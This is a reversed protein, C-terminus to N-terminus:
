RITPLHVRLLLRVASGSRHQPALSIPTQDNGDCAHLDAKAKVLVQVAAKFNGAAAWHLPTRHDGDSEDIDAMAALLMAVVSAHGSLAALILGTDGARNRAHVGAKSALLFGVTATRGNAAAYHLPGTKLGPVNVSAKAEVLLRAVDVHNWRAAQHLPTDGNADPKDVAARAALLLAHWISIVGPLPRTCSHSTRAM